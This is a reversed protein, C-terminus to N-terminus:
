QGVYNLVEEYMFMIIIKSGENLIIHDLVLETKTPWLYMFFMSNKNFLVYHTLVVEEGFVLKDHHVCLM